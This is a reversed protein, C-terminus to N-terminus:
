EGPAGNAITRLEAQNILPAPDVPQGKYRLEIHVHPGTSIGSSGSWAILAGQEVVQRRKVTVRDLHAVLTSWGDGHDLCVVYGLQQLPGAHVVLGRAPALVETGEPVGIDVGTHSVDYSRYGATVPGTVPSVFPLTDPLQGQGPRFRLGTHKWNIIWALAFLSAGTIWLTSRLAGPHAAGLVLVAGTVALALLVTDALKLRSLSVRPGARLLLYGAAYIAASLPGVLLPFVWLVSPERVTLWAAILGAPACLRTWM